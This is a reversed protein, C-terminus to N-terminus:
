ICSCELTYQFDPCWYVLRPLCCHYCVSLQPSVSVEAEQNKLARAKKKERYRAKEQLHTTRETTSSITNSLWNWSTMYTYVHGIRQLCKDTSQQSYDLMSIIERLIKVANDYYTWHQENMFCLAWRRQVTERYAVTHQYTHKIYIYAHLHWSCM